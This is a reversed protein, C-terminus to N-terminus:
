PKEFYCFAPRFDRGRPESSAGSVQVSEFGYYARNLYATVDGLEQGGWQLRLYFAWRAVWRRLDTLDSVRRDQRIYANSEHCGLCHQLYLAEGRESDAAPATGCM